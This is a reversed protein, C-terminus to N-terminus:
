CNEAIPPAKDLVQLTWAVLGAAAASHSRVVDVCFSPQEAIAKAQAFAMPSVKQADFSLLKDLFCMDGLVQKCQGWGPKEESGLLCVAAAVAEVVLAPPKAL